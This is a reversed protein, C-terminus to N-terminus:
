MPGFFGDIEYTKTNKTHQATRNLCKFKTQHPTKCKNQKMSKEKLKLSTDFNARCLIWFNYKNM